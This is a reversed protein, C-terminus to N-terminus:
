EDNIAELTYIKGENSIITYKDLVDNIKINDDFIVNYYTHEKTKESSVILIFACGAFILGLLLGGVTSNCMMGFIIAGIAFTFCLFLIAEWTHWEKVTFTNLITM